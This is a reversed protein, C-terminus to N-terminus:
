YVFLKRVLYAITSTVMVLILQGSLPYLTYTYIGQKLYELIIVGEVPPILFSLGCLYVLGFVHILGLGCLSSVTLNELHPKTRFALWGCLWAAPIFGLIYGFTPEKFYNIGGGFVFVPLWYLGLIVYAIQSMVGGNKGGLCGALLVGVIQFSVGLSHTQIGEISWNWPPNIIFGEMFTGLITLFLGVLAWLIEDVFFV